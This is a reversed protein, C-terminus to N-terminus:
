NKDNNKTVEVHTYIIQDVDHVCNKAKSEVIKEKERGSGSM